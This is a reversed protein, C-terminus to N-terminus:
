SRYFYFFTSVPPPPAIASPVDAESSLVQVSHGLIRTKVWIELEENYKMFLIYAVYVMFLILAEYWMIVEDLFSAVVLALALIYFSVDRFYLSM